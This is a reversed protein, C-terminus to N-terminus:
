GRGLVARALPDVPAPVDLGHKPDFLKEVFLAEGDRPCLLPQLGLERAARRRGGGLALDRRGGVVATARHETLDPLLEPFYQSQELPIICFSNSRSRRPIHRLRTACRSPTCTTAPEFGAMGVM